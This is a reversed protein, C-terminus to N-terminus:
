FMSDEKKQLNSVKRKTGGPSRGGSQIERDKVLRRHKRQRGKAMERERVKKRAEIDKENVIAQMRAENSREDERTLYAKRDEPTEKSFFNLLGYKAKQGTDKAETSLELAHKIASTVKNKKVKKPEPSPSSQNRKSGTPETPKHESQPPLSSSYPPIPPACSPPSPPPTAESPTYISTGAEEYSQDSDKAQEVIEVESDSDANALPQFNFTFGKAETEFSQNV